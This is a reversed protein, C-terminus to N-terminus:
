FSLAKTEHSGQASYGHTGVPAPPPQQQACLLHWCRQASSLCERHSAHSAQPGSGLGRTGWLVPSAVKCVQSTEWGARKSAHPEM